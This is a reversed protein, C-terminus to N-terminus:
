RIQFQLISLRHFLFGDSHFLDLICRSRIAPLINLLPIVGRKKYILTVNFINAIDSLVGASPIRIGKEWESVASSSKFGLMLALDLQEIGNKNRLYRLNNKFYKNM